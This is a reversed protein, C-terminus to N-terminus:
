SQTWDYSTVEFDVGTSVTVTNVTIANGAGTGVDDEDWLATEDKDLIRAWGIDGDADGTTTLPTSNASATGSAADGFAPDAFDVSVLLTEGPADGVNAPPSGTYFEIKGAANTTGADILDVAADAGANAVADSLRLTM